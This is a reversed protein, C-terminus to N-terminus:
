WGMWWRASLDCWTFGGGTRGQKDKIPNGESDYFYVTNNSFQVLIYHHNNWVVGRFSAAPSTVINNGFNSTVISGATNSENITTGYQKGSVEDNFMAKDVYTKNCLDDGAVPANAQKCQGNQVTLGLTSNELTSNGTPGGEHTRFKISNLSGNNSHNTTIYHNFGAGAGDGYGLTIQAQTNIDNTGGNQVELNNNIIVKEGSSDITAVGYADVSATLSGAGTADVMDIGSVETLRRKKLITNNQDDFTLVDANNVQMTLGRVAHHTYTHYYDEANTIEGPVQNPVVDITNM